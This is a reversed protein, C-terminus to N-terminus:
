EGNDTQLKTLDCGAESLVFMLSRMHTNIQVPDSPRCISMLGDFDSAISCDFIPRTLSYDWLANNQFDWVRETLSLM